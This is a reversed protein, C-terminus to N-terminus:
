DNSGKTFSYKEKILKWIYQRGQAGKLEKERKMAQQKTSLEDKFLLVWPRYKSTWGKNLSDNHSDLRKEFNSSFGIYIKNHTPSFIVYSSFMQFIPKTPRPLISSGVEHRDLM